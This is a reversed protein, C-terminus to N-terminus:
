AASIQENEHQWRELSDKLVVWKRKGVQVAPLRPVGPIEGRRLRHITAPSCGIRTAAEVLLLWARQETPPLPKRSRTTRMHDDRRLDDMRNLREHAVTTV